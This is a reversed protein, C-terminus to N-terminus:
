FAIESTPLVKAEAGMTQFYEMRVSVGLNPNAIYWTAPDFPDADMPAEYIVPLFTRDDIAGTLM